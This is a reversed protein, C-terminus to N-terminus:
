SRKRRGRGTRGNDKLLRIATVNRYDILVSGLHRDLVILFEPAMFWQERSSVVLRTGDNLRIEKTRAELDLLARKVGDPIV